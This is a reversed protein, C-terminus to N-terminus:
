EPYFPQVHIPTFYRWCGIGAEQFRPMVHDRVASQAEPTAEDRGVRIVYVFWSM